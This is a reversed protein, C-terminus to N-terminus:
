SSYSESMVQYSVERTTVLSFGYMGWTSVRGEVSLWTWTPAPCPRERWHTKLGLPYLKPNTYESWWLLGNPLTCEWIGALYRGLYPPLDM